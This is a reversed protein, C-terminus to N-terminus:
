PRDDDDVEELSRLLVLGRDIAPRDQEAAWLRLRWRGELPAEDFAAADDDSARPQGREAEGPWPPPPDLRVRTIGSAVLESRPSSSEPTDLLSQDRLLWSDEGIQKVRYRVTVPRQTREHTTEALGGYSELRLGSGEAEVRTAQSLDAEIVRAAALHASAARPADSAGVPEPLPKRLTAIVTLVGAMLLVTLATALMLELVTFGARKRM